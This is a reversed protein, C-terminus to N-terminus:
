PHPSVSDVCPAGLRVQTLTFLQAAGSAEGLDIDDPSGKQYFREMHLM